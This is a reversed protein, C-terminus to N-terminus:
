AEGPGFDEAEGEETEEKELEEEVPDLPDEGETLEFM